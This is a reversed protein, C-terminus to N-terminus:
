VVQGVAKLTLILGAVLIVGASAIPILGAMKTGLKRSVMSRARVAILGVATLAGALGISFFGILVLGYALRHLAISALLVVLATPSPLIGGSVALAVLGRRSIPGSGVRKESHEHGAHEHGAHEHGAHDEAGQEHGHVHWPVEGRRRARSRVIFLGAGLVVVVAGSIVGLWPYVRDPSFFRTAYLTVMGLLLVSTTHMLSVAVGVAAITRVRAGAGVLYAALITKGHGPGMAHLGGLGLALLLTLVLFPISMGTRTVLSAFAGGSAIPAGSVTPGNAAASAAASAHGPHFSLAAATVNLPSSLLDSPYALLEKSVSSVPVTSGALAVGDLSSATIEKWGIRGRYNRDLFAIRGSAGVRGALTVELRLIPLGAQGQRFEMSAGAVSLPIPKGDVSLSLNRLVGPATRTAWSQREAADATGDGNTDINPMEQFTPIEAMDVVYLIRVSRPTLVIGSYRNITFNGLPHAFAQAPSGLATGAFLGGSLALVALLRKVFREAAVELGPCGERVV